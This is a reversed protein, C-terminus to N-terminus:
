YEEKIEMPAISTIYDKCKLIIYHPKKGFLRAFFGRKKDVYYGSETAINWSSYSDSYVIRELQGCFGIACRKVKQIKKKIKIERLCFCHEIARYDITLNDSNIILNELDWTCRFAGQQILQVTTPLQYNVGKKRRPYLILTKMDKSFLVGDQSAFYPNDPDVIIEALSSAFLFAGKDIKRVNKSIGLVELSYNFALSSITTVSEPLVVVSDYGLYRRLTKKSKDSEYYFDDINNKTKKKLKQYDNTSGSNAATPKSATAKQKKPQVKKLSKFEPNNKELFAIFEENNKYACLEYVPYKLYKQNFARKIKDFKENLVITIFPKKYEDALNLERSCPTSDLSQRSALFIFLSCNKIKTSIEEAEEKSYTFNENLWVEYGSNKLSSVLVFVAGCDDWDYSIFIYKNIDAM